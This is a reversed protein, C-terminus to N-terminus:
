FSGSQFQGSLEAVCDITKIMKSHPLVLVKMSIMLCTTASSTAMAHIAANGHDLAYIFHLDSPSVSAKERSQSNISLFEGWSLKFENIRRWSGLTIKLMGPQHEAVVERRV